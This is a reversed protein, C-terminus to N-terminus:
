AYFCLMYLPKNFFSDDIYIPRRHWRIPVLVRVTKIQNKIEKWCKLQKGAVTWVWIELKTQIRKLESLYEDRPPRKFTLIYTILHEPAPACNHTLLNILLWNSACMMMAQQRRTREWTTLFFALHWAVGSLSLLNIAEAQLHWGWNSQM